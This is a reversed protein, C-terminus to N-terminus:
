AELEGKVTWVISDLEARLWYLREDLKEAAEEARRLAAFTEEVPMDDDAYYREIAGLSDVISHISEQKVQKVLLPDTEASLSNLPKENNNARTNM